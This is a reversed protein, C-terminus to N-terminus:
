FVGRKSKLYYKQAQLLQKQERKTLFRYRFDAVTGPGIGSKKLGALPDSWDMTKKLDFVGLNRLKRRYYAAAERDKMNTAKRFNYSYLSKESSGVVKGGRGVRELYDYKRSLIGAYSQEETDKSTIFVDNFKFNIKDGAITSLGPLVAPSTIDIGFQDYDIDEQRIGLGVDYPLVDFVGNSGDGRDSTLIQLVLQNM